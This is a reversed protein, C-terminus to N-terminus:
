IEDPYLPDCDAYYHMHGYADVISYDDGIIRKSVGSFLDGPCIIIGDAEYETRSVMTLPFREIKDYMEKTM